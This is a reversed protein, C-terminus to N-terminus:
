YGVCVGVFFIMMKNIKFMDTGGTEFTFTSNLAAAGCRRGSVPPPSLGRKETTDRGTPKM